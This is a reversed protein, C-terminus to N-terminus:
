DGGGMVSMDSDYQLLSESTRTRRRSSRRPGSNAPMTEYM